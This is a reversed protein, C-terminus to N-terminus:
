LNDSSDIGSKAAGSGLLSIDGKDLKGFLAAQVLAKGHLDVSVVVRRRARSLPMECRQM